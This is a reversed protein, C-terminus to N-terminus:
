YFPSPLRVWKETEIVFRAKLLPVSDVARSASDSKAVLKELTEIWMKAKQYDGRQLDGYQGWDLAHVTDGVSDGPEWLDVAADYASQNSKSVQEWMGRQIFIHSPM